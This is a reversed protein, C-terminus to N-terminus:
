SAPITGSLQGVADMQGAAASIQARVYGLDQYQTYPIFVSGQHGQGTQYFVQVGRVPQGGVTVVTNETQGTVTWTTDAAYNTTM